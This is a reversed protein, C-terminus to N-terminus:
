QGYGTTDSPRDPWLSASGGPHLDGGRPHLGRRRSAFAGPHLDGKICVGRSASGGELRVSHCVPTFVNGQELSRKRATILIRLVEARCGENGLFAFLIDSCSVTHVDLLLRSQILVATLPLECPRKGEAPALTQRCPM